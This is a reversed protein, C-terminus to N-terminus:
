DLFHEAGRSDCEGVANRGRCFFDAEQIKTGDDYNVCMAEMVDKAVFAYDTYDWMSSADLM